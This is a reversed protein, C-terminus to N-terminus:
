KKYVTYDYFTEMWSPELGMTDCPIDLDRMRRIDDLLSRADTAENQVLTLGYAFEPLMVPRGSVKTILGVLGKLSDARFLFFSAKGGTVDIVISDPDTKACDIFSRYTSDLMFAWGSDSLMVAMPGYSIVNEVHMDACMGRIMIRKRTADGLGFLREKKDLPIKIRYGGGSKESLFSVIRKANLTVKDGECEALGDDSLPTGTNLINYRCLLSDDANEEFAHWINESIKTLKM